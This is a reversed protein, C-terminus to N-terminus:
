RPLVATLPQALVWLGFVTFAVMLLLVPLQSLMAARRHPWLRLAIRHATWVSLIHGFLILAVQSHWVWAM